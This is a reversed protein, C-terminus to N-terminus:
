TSILKNHVGPPLAILSSVNTLGIALGAATTGHAARIREPWLVPYICISCSLAITVIVYKVVLIDVTILIIYCM